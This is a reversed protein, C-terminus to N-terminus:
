GSIIEGSKAVTQKSLFLSLSAAWRAGFVLFFIFILMDCKYVKWAFDCAFHEVYTISSAYSNSM